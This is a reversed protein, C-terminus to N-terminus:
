WKIPSVSNVANAKPHWEVHGGTFLINCGGSHWDAPAGGAGGPTSTPRAQYGGGTAADLVYITYPDLRGVKWWVQLTDNPPTNYNYFKERNMLYSPMTGSSYVQSLAGKSMCLFFNGQPRGDARGLNYYQYAPRAAGVYGLRILQVFWAGNNGLTDQRANPTLFLPPIFEEYDNAYLNVALAIQKLNNMCYTQRARERAQSLAPLLMAALIAIIAVVVLLEILTFGKRREM